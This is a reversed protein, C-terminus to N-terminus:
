IRIGDEVGLERLPGRQQDHNSQVSISNGSWETINGCYISNICCTTWQFCNFPIAM